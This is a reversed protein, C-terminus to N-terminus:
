DESIPRAIEHVRVFRGDRVTGFLFAEGLRVKGDPATKRSVFRAAITDGQWIAEPVEFAVSPFLSQSRDLYARYQVRDTVEGNVTQVYDEAFLEGITSPDAFLRDLGAQLRDRLEEGGCPLGLKGLSM